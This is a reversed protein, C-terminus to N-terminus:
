AARAPLLPGQGRKRTVGAPPPERIGAVAFLNQGCETSFNSKRYHRSLKTKAGSGPPPLAPSTLSINITRTFAVSRGPATRTRPTRRVGRPHCGIGQRDCYCTPPLRFADSVKVRAARGSPLPTISLLPSVMNRGEQGCHPRAPWLKLGHHAPVCARRLRRARHWPHHLIM